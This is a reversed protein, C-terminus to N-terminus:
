YSGYEDGQAAKWREEAAADGIAHRADREIERIEANHARRMQAIQAHLREIEAAAEDCLAPDISHMSHRCRAASERLKEALTSV